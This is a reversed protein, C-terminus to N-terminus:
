YRILSNYRTEERRAIIKHFEAVLWSKEVATDIFDWPLRFGEPRAGLYFSPDSDAEQLAEQWKPYQFYNDWADFRAGKNFALLIAKSLRRDGRSLIAELISMELRHFNIKIKRSRLNKLLYDQKEKIKGAEEMALWQFPTHAKPILANINVHVRAPGRNFKRRLDSVQKVLDVIAALDEKEEAPLGIMFYLKVQQWGCAYAEELVQLFEEQNFDKNLLQRLRPSAAEPAFTLGTKKITAIASSLNGVLIKPKLSPLSISTAKPKFEAILNNFLETIKPYDSVSLGALSLEEYGTCRYLEKALAFVNESKRIRFPYYQSRAQCFNCQHPCGRMTEVVIRDHIISIYPVLWDLPFYTQNLDKVYRKKIQSPVNKFKPKFEELRGQPDYNVAYLGPAYVGEIGSFEQWLEEKSLRGNKFDQQHRRYIRLLELIVEEAEGIVFLDFFEALPEPNLACPGGGIVLPYEKTRLGAQLPIGGLDLINLVNTYCLESGLSFGILDFERLTRKSELSFIERKQKRLINELDLGLSFFRECIVGASSNLLSYIIRLGLNSMGVEYLDPFCLAFKVEAKAFDKRLINWEEGIYRGPKQVQLLIDDLM